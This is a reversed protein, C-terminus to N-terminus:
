KEYNNFLGKFGKTNELAKDRIRTKKQIEAELYDEFYFSKQNKNFYKNKKIKKM